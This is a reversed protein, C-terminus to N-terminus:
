AGLLTPVRFEFVYKARRIVVAPSFNEATMIVRVRFILRQLCSFNVRKQQVDASNEEGAAAADRRRPLSRPVVNLYKRLVVLLAAPM